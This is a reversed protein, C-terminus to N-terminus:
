ASPNLLIQLDLNFPSLLRLDGIHQAHQMDESFFVKCGSLLASALLLCDWWGLGAAEQIRWAERTVEFGAPAACFPSLAAVFHRAEERQMLRRRDAIIVRHCENLSQPSLVLMRNTITARLLDAAQRRRKPEKPDLAYVLINTDVFCTIKAHPM